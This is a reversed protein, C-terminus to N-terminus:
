RSFIFGQPKGMFGQTKGLVGFVWPNKISIFGQTKGLFGHTKFQFLVRPKEWFGMPKLNLYFGPNRGFGWFGM